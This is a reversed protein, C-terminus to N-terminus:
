LLENIDSLKKPTVDIAAYSAALREHMRAISSGIDVTNTVNIDMKPNYRSPDRIGLLRFYIDAKARVMQPDSETEPFRKVEDEMLVNGAHRAHLLAKDFVPDKVRFNYFAFHSTFGLAQAIERYGQGQIAMEFALIKEEETLIRMWEFQRLVDCVDFLEVSKRSYDRACDQLDDFLEVCKQPSM